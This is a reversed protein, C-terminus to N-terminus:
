KKLAIIAVILSAMAIITPIVWKGFNIAIKIINRLIEKRRNVFYNKGDTTIDRVIYIWGSCTSANIIIVLNNNVLHDIDSRECYDDDISIEHKNYLAKTLKKLLRRQTKNLMYM